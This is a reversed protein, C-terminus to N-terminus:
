MTITRMQFLTEHLQEDTIGGLTKELQQKQEDSLVFKKEVIKPKEKKFAGQMLRLEKVAPFGFFTNIRSLILDKKHEMVLAFAGSQVAVHLVGGTRNSKSFKLCQPASGAALESGALTNWNSAIDIFAMMNKDFLPKAILRVEKTLLHLSTNAQRKM